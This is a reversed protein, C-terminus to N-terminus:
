RFSSINTFNDNHLLATLRNIAILRVWYYLNKNVYYIYKYQTHEYKHIYLYVCMCYINQFHKCTNVHIYKNCNINYIFINFIYVYCIEKFIYM